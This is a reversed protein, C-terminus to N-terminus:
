IAGQEGYSRAIREADDLHKGQRIWDILRGEGPRYEDALLISLQVWPDTEGFAQLVRRLGEPVGSGTFQVAPFGWEGNALPVALLSRRRLRQQVAQVSRGLLEAVQRTSFAGGAASLLEEKAAAGLLLEEAWAEIEGARAPVACLLEAITGAATPAEVAKLIQEDTAGQVAVELRAAMRRFLALRVPDLTVGTGSSAM